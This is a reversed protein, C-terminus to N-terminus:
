FTLSHACFMKVCIMCCSDPRRSMWLCKDLLFEILVLDPSKMKIAPKSNSILYHKEPWILKCAEIPYVFKLYIKWLYIAYMLNLLINHSNPHVTEDWFMVCVKCKLVRKTTATLYYIIYIGSPLPPFYEINGPAQTNIRCYNLIWRELLCDWHLNLWRM